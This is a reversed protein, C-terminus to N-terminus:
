AHASTKSTHERAMKGDELTMIREAYRMIAPDHTAYLFTIQEERNLKKLFEMLEMGTKHDLNATLEDGLVLRPKHVLARAVAVRQQQGRSMQAPKRDLLKEVGFREALARSRKTREASNVGQLWLPYEINEAASFTPILNYDQFIFGIKNLRFRTLEKQSLHTIETDDFYIKGQTPKLLCGLLNLLTTKGSGSPGCLALFAGEPIELSIDTLATVPFASEQFTQTLNEIRLINM